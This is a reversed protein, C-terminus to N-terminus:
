RLSEENVDLRLIKRFVIDFPSHMSQALLSRPRGASFSLFSRVFSRLFSRLSSLTLTLPFLSFDDDNSKLLLIEM